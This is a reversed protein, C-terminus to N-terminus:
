MGWDGKREQEGVPSQSCGHVGAILGFLKQRRIQACSFDGLLLQLLFDPSKDFSNASHESKVSTTLSSTGTMRQLTECFKEGAPTM